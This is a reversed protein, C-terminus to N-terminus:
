HNDSSEDAATEGLRDLHGEQREWERLIARLEEPTAGERGKVIVVIEGGPGISKLRTDLATGAALAEAIRYPLGDLSGAPPPLDTAVAPAPEGGDRVAEISGEGWGLVREVARLTGTVKNFPQGREIARIASESADIRKALERQTLGQRNRADRVASGVRKWGEDM